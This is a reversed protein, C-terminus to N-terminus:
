SMVMLCDWLEEAKGFGWTVQDKSVESENLYLIM